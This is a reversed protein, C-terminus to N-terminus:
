MDCRVQRLKLLHHTLSNTRSCGQAGVSAPESVCACYVLQKGRSMFWNHESGDSHLCVVPTSAPCRSSESALLSQHISLFRCRHASAKTEKSGSPLGQDFRSRLHQTQLFLSDAALLSVSHKFQFFPSVQFYSVEEREAETAESVVAFSDRRIFSLRGRRSKGAAGLFECVKRNVRGLRSM